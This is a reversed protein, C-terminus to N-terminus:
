PKTKPWGPLESKKVTNATHEDYHREMQVLLGRLTWRSEPAKSDLELGDLLYAFRLTFENVREMQRAEEQGDWDAHAARYDPPMQKPNLDMVPITPDVAHYIQSFFLLQRGMMHECNWRPTHTGNAPKFNMQEVSLKAFVEQSRRCSAQMGNLLSQLENPAQWPKDGTAVITTQSPSKSSQAIAFTNHDLPSTDVTGDLQEALTQQMAAKTKSSLLVFRPSLSEIWAAMADSLTPDSDGIWVVADVATLSNSKVPAAGTTPSNGLFLLSVGDARVVLGLPQDTATAVSQVHIANPDTEHGDTPQWTVDAQNVARALVHDIDAAITLPKRASNPELNAPITQPWVQVELGWLTQVSASGDAHRLIALPDGNNAQASRGTVCFTSAILAFHLMHQATPM